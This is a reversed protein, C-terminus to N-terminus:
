SLTVNGSQFFEQPFPVLVDHGFRRGLGLVLYSLNRLTASIPNVRGWHSSHDLSAIPLCARRVGHDMFDLDSRGYRVFVMAVM